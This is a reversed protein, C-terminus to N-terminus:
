WLAGSYRAAPRSMGTSMFTTDVHVVLEQEGAQEARQAEVGDGGPDAQRSRGAGQGPPRLARDELREGSYGTSLFRFADALSRRNQDDAM